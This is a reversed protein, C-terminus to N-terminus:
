RLDTCSTSYREACRSITIRYTCINTLPIRAYAPALESIESIEDVRTQGRICPRDHIEIRRHEIKAGTVRSLVTMFKQLKLVRM